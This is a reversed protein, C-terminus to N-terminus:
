MIAFLLILKRADMSSSRYRRRRRDDMAEEGDYGDQGDKRTVPLIPLASSFFPVYRLLQRYAPGAHAGMHIFEFGPLFPM